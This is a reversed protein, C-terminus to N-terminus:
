STLKQPEIQAVNNSKLTISSGFLGTIWPHSVTIYVGVYDPPGNVLVNRTTSNWTLEAPYTNTAWGGCPTSGCAAMSSMDGASYTNCTGSSTCTSAPSSATASGKYIVVSQIQSFPMAASERMVQHLIQWDATANNGQIAGERAAAASANAVTLYDRFAGGFELLGFLLTIFFPTLLAAEAIISGHDGRLRRPAPIAADRRM